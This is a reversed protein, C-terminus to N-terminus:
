QVTLIATDSIGNLEASITSTGPSLANALGISTITAVQVDSSGWTVQRTLDLSTADSFAGTATYPQGQGVPISASSPSISISTLTANTVTLSTSGSVGAFLASITTTGPAVATATGPTAQRNTISAVGSNSSTWIVFPTLDQTIGDSFTAIAEFGTQFGAAVSSNQPTVRISTLTASNVLLTATATVSGDQATITVAGASEGTAGGTRAVAIQPNSSSWSCLANVNEKSGDTFTATATYEIGSAPAIEATAPSLAISALTASSVTLLTTGTASAGAFSFQASINTTGASVGVTFGGNGLSSVVTAVAPNSSSWTVQGTLDQNSSDSFVGTASFRLAGGSPLTVNAPSIVISTITANTVTLPASASVPGLTANISATGPSIGLAVASSLSVISTDSSTWTVQFTIDRTSGDNFLGTAALQKRTGQAISGNSPQISISTLNAANVSLVSTASIGGFSGTITSTGINRGTTLGSTTISAVNVASSQWQTVGTVDQKTGDSFGATATFQQSIGLAITPNAPAISLSTPTASSVTLLTSGSISGQTATITTNGASLAQALGLTPSTNSVTAVSTASSSWTLSATINQTSNDSFTGTAVFQLTTNRAIQPNVPTVAISVLAPNVTLSFSGSVGTMTATIVCQGAKLATLKGSSAVGAISSDSSSWTAFNTLDKSGNDGYMGTATMQQSQGVTLTSNPGTVQIIALISQSSSHPSGSGCGTTFLLAAITGALFLRQM